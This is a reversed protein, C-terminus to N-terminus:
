ADVKTRRIRGRRKDPGSSKFNWRADHHGSDKRLHAARIQRQRTGEIYAYLNKMGSRQVGESILHVLYNNLSTGEREASEAAAEHLTRPLRLVFKGSHVAAHRPEPIAVGSEFASEIWLAKAEEGQALAEGPTAGHALCGPLEPYRVVWADSEDDFALNIRYFRRLYPRLVKRTM